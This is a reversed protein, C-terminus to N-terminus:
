RWSRTPLTVDEREDDRNQRAPLGLGSTCTVLSWTTTQSDSVENSALNSSNGSFATMGRCPTV